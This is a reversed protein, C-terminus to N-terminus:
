LGPEHGPSQNIKTHWPDPCPTPLTMRVTVHLTAVREQARVAAPGRMM